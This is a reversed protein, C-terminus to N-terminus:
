WPSHTIRFCDFVFVVQLLSRWIFTFSRWLFWHEFPINSAWGRWPSRWKTPLPQWTTKSKFHNFSHVFGKWFLESLIELHFYIGGIGLSNRGDVECSKLRRAIVLLRLIHEKTKMSINKEHCFLDCDSITYMLLYRCLGFIIDVTSSDFRDFFILGLGVVLMFIYTSIYVMVLLLELLEVLLKKWKKENGRSGFTVEASRNAAIRRLTRQGQGMRRPRFLPQFRKTLDSTVEVCRTQTEKKHRVNENAFITLKPLKDKSFM